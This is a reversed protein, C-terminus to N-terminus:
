AARRFSNPEAHLRLMQDALEANLQHGGRFSTFSGILDMGTLALDGIMDLAKHRAPEDPWRLRSQPGDPGFVLLEDATVHRALGREHLQAVQETTVFTRASAIERAFKTPTVASQYEHPTIPSEPGYDLRYHVHMLGDRSPAMEVWAAATGVRIVRDVVLRHRQAAQMVLGAGRLADVYAQCSGDLGPLEGGDIEVLCNDIELAHLTALLHEVMEVSTRSTALTTRFQADRRHRLLAPVAPHGDQDVRVIRIGSNAQAPCLVVEVTKGSWYGRGEVVVRRAITHQNRQCDMM